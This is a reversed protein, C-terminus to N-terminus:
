IEIKGEVEYRKSWQVFCDKRDSVKGTEHKYNNRKIM